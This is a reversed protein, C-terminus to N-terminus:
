LVTSVGAQQIQICAPSVEVIAAMDKAFQAYVAKLRTDDTSPTLDTCLRVCARRTSVIVGERLITCDFPECVDMLADAPPKEGLAQATGPKRARTSVFRPDETGYEIHGWLHHAVSVIFICYACAEAVRMRGLRPHLEGALTAQFRSVGHDDDRIGLASFGDRCLKSIAEWAQLIPDRIEDPIAWETPLTVDFLKIGDSIIDDAGAQTFGGAVHVVGTPGFVTFSARSVNKHVDLTFPALLQQLPHAVPLEWAALFFKPGVIGHCWVTHPIVTMYQFLSARFLLAIRPYSADGPAAREGEPTEVWLLKRQKLSVAARGGLVPSSAQIDYKKMLNLDFVRAEADEGEVPKLDGAFGTVILQTYMREPSQDADAAADVVNPVKLIVRARRRVEEPTAYTDMNSPLHNLLFQYLAKYAKQTLWDRVGDSKALPMRGFRPWVEVYYRPKNRIQKPDANQKSLTSRVAMAFLHPIPRAWRTWRQLLTPRTPAPAPTTM